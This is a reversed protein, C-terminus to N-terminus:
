RSPAQRFLTPLPLPRIPRPRYRSAPWCRLWGSKGDLGLPDSGSLIPMITDKLTITLTHMAPSVATIDVSQAWVSCGLVVLAVLILVSTRVVKSLM